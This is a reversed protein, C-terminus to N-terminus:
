RHRRSVWCKGRGPRERRGSRGTVTRPHNAPRDDAHHPWPGERRCGGRCLRGPPDPPQVGALGTRQPQDTHSRDDDLLALRRQAGQCRAAAVPRGSRHRPHAAVPGARADAVGLAADHCNRPWRLGRKGAGRAAAARGPRHDTGYRGARAGPVPRGPRSWQHSSRFGHATELFFYPRTQAHPCLECAHRVYGVCVGACVSGPGASHVRATQSRPKIATMAATTARGM